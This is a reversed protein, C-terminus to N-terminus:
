AHMAFRSLVTIAGVTANAMGTWDDGRRVGPCRSSSFHGIRQLRQQFAQEGPDRAHLRREVVARGTAAGGARMVAVAHPQLMENQKPSVAHGVHRVSHHFNAGSLREAGPQPRKKGAGLSVGAHVGDPVAARPAIAGHKVLQDGQEKRDRAGRGALPQGSM